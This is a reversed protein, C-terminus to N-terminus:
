GTAVQRKTIKNLRRQKAKMARRAKRNLSEQGEEMLAAVEKSVEVLPEGRRKAADIEDLTRYIRGTDTNM